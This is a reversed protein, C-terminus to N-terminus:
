RAQFPLNCGQIRQNQVFEPSEKKKKEKQFGSYFMTINLIMKVMKINLIMVTVAGTGRHPPHQCQELERYRFVNLSM